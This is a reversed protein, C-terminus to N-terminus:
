MVPKFVMLFYVGIMASFAPIGLWFWIHAYRQYRADMASNQTLAAHALDRMRIQLWVVPLWCAGALCYLFLTLLVWSQDLPIGLLQILWLGTIPQIIITPTTFAWDAIVVMRNTHAMTALNGQRDACWKYFASGLGTGFLLTASLIHIWKILAYEIM